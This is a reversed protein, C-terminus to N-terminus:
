ELRHSLNKMYSNNIPVGETKREQFEKREDLFQLIQDKEENKQAKLRITEMLKAKDVEVKNFVYIVEKNTQKGNHKSPIM